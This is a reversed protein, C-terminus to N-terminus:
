DYCDITFMPQLSHHETWYRGICVPIYTIMMMLICVSHVSGATRRVRVLSVRHTKRKNIIMHVYLCVYMCAYMRVYAFDYASSDLSQVQTHIHAHRRVTAQFFPNRNAVVTTQKWNLFLRLAPPPTGRSFFM